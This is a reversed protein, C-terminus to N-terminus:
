TSGACELPALEVTFRGGCTVGFLEYESDFPSEFFLVDCAEGLGDACQDYLGDLLPDDGYAGLSPDGPFDAFPHGCIEGARALELGFAIADPHSADRAEGTAGALELLRILGVDRVMEEAICVRGAEDISTNRGVLAVFFEVVAERVEDADALGALAAELGSETESLREETVALGAVADDLEGRSTDRDAVSEALDTELREIRGTLDDADDEAGAM